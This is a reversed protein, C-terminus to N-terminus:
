GVAQKDGVLEAAICEIKGIRNEFADETLFFSEVDHGIKDKIEASLTASNAAIDSAFMSEARHTVHEGIFKNLNFM